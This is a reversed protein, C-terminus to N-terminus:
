FGARAFVRVATRLLIDVDRWLSWNSIYMYDLKAMEALGIEIPGRIQWPGTMGPTLHLRYRDGGAIMVDEEAILPRPGVLSMQGCLVNWLQPSEDLHTRRLWRGVRTVRPDDAIKFLGDRAENRDLLEAQLAAADQVMTRFKIMRFPQGNRGVRTQRFLVPGRSDIRILVAVIAFLPAAVLLGLVAGVVDFARKIM